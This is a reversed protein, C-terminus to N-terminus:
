TKLGILANWISFLFTSHNGLNNGFLLSCFFWKISKKTLFAMKGIKLYSRKFTVTIFTSYNSNLYALENRGTRLVNFYNTWNFCWRHWTWSFYCIWCVNEFESYRSYTSRTLIIYLIPIPSYTIYTFKM